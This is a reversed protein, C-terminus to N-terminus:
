RNTSIRSHPRRACLTPIWGRNTWRTAHQITWTWRFGDSLLCHLPQTARCCNCGSQDTFNLQQRGAISSGTGRIRHTRNERLSGRVCPCRTIRNGGHYHRRTPAVPQRLAANTEEGGTRIHHPRLPAPRPHCCAASGHSAIKQCPNRSSVPSQSGRRHDTVASTSAGKCASIAFLREIERDSGLLEVATTLRGGLEPHLREILLALSADPLPRKLRGILSKAVLVCLMAASVCLFLLRALHPMETGGFRVPTYDILYGLWFAASFLGLIALFADMVVFRRIQKRISRLLDNLEPSIQEEPLM